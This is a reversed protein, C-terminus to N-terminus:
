SIKRLYPAKVEQATEKGAENSRWQRVYTGLRAFLVDAEWPLKEIIVKDSFGELLDAWKSVQKRNQMEISEFRSPFEEKLFEHARRERKDKTYNNNDTPNLESNAVSVKQKETYNLTKGLESENGLKSPNLESNKNFSPNMESNKNFDKNFESENGLKNWLKGKKSLKVFDKLGIKKYDIMELAELSKFNRYVTDPKSFFFPLEDLVKNRSIHYYTEGDIIREDAWSSLQNFLEMLSAESVNLGYDMCKQQNIIINFRM